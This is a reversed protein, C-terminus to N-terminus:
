RLLRAKRKRDEEPLTWREQALMEGAEAPTPANPGCEVIDRDWAHKALVCGAQKLQADTPNMRRYTVTGKSRRKM